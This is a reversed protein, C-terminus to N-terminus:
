RDKFRRPPAEYCATRLLPQREPERRRLAYFEVKGRDLLLECRVLRNIWHKDTQFTHGQVQVSGAANTRRLYIVKGSLARQFDPAFDGPVKSRTPAVDRKPETKDRHAQIYRVNRASLDKLGHFRTRQWVKVQWLGNFSEIAAQFGTEQPPAFVPVSGLQLCLRLVRGFSDPFQHAGQFRTDNDFQVYRPRGWRKWHELLKCIVFKSTVLETVWAAALRGHLSMGTLVNVFPGDQIKLDEIIDFSDLEAKGQAVDPLYWGRLPSPRRVRGHGDVLGERKLIRAITRISPASGVHQRQLEQAIAVAGSEGLVSNMKLDHRVDMIKREIKRATRNWAIPCGGPRDTWNVRDLRQEGARKVWTLVTAHSVGFRRAVSRM